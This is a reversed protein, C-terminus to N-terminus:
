RQPEPAHFYKAVLEDNTLLLRRLQPGEIVQLGQIPSDSQDGPSFHAMWNRAASTLQGDTVLLLHYNQDTPLKSAYTIMQQLASLWQQGRRYLKAEVLWTEKSAEGTPETTTRELKIDIPTNRQGTDELQQFGLQLLLDAVLLEFSRPDLRTFDLDPIASIHEILRELNGEFDSRLDVWQRQALVAPVQCDEIIVPLVNIGRAEMEPTTAFGLEYQVWNSSVARPSLLILLYDSAALAERVTQAISDGPALAVEGFRVNVDRARLADAIRRATTQDGQAYSLFVRPFRRRVEGESSDM